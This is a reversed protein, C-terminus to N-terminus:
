RKQKPPAPMWADKFTLSVSIDGTTLPCAEFTDAAKLSVCFKDIEDIVFLSSTIYLCLTTGTLEDPRIEIKASNDYLLAMEAIERVAKEIISYRDTNKVLYVTTPMHEVYYDLLEDIRDRKM